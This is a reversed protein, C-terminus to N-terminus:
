GCRAVHVLGHNRPGPFGAFVEGHHPMERGNLKRRVRFLGGEEWWVVWRKLAEVALGGVRVLRAEFEHVEVIEHDQGGVDVGDVVGEHVLVHGVERVVVLVFHNLHLLRAFEPDCLLATGCFFFLWPLFLQVLEGPVRTYTFKRFFCCCLFHIVM